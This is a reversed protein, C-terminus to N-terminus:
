NDSYIHGGAFGLLNRLFDSPLNMVTSYISTWDGMDKIAMATKSDDYVFKALETAEHDDSLDIYPLPGASDLPSDLDNGYRFGDLGETLIHGSTFAGNLMGRKNVTGVEFGTLDTINELSNAHGDSLGPLYVWLVVKDDCM